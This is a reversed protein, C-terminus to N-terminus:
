VVSLSLFDSIWNVYSGAPKFIREMQIDGGKVLEPYVALHYEKM